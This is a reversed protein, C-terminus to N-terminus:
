NKIKIKKIIKKSSRIYKQRIGLKIASENVGKVIIFDTQLVQSYNLIVHPSYIIEACTCM